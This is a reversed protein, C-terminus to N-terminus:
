DNGEELWIEEQAIYATQPSTAWFDIDFNHAGATLTIPWSGSVNNLTTAVVSAGGAILSDDIQVQMRAPFGSAGTTLQSCWRLRYKGAPLATPTTYRHAQVASASTTNAPNGMSSAVVGNVIGCGGSIAFVDARKINGGYVRACVAAVYLGIGSTPNWSECDTLRATCTGTAMFSDNGMSRAVCRLLDYAASGACTIARGGFSGGDMEVCHLYVKGAAYLRIADNGVILTDTRYPRFGDIVLDGVYPTGISSYIGYGLYGDIRCNKWRLSQNATGALYWGAGTVYRINDAICDNWAVNGVGNPVYFGYDAGAGLGASRLRLGNVRQNSAHQWITGGGTIGSADVWTNEPGDPCDVNVGSPQQIPFTEAAYQGGYIRVTDGSTANAFAQTITTYNGRKAYRDVELVRSPSVNHSM